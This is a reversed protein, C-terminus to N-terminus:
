NIPLNGSSKKLLKRMRARMALRYVALVLGIALLYGAADLCLDSPDFERGPVFIKHIQDLLSYCACALIAIGACPLLRKKKIGLVALGAFIGLIGFEYFHAMKRPGLIIKGSPTTPEIVPKPLVSVAESTTNVTEQVDQSTLYFIAAATAICGIIGCILFIQKLMM